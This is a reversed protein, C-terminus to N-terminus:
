LRSRFTFIEDQDKIGFRDFTAILIWDLKGAEVLTMLDDFRYRERDIKMKRSDWDQFLGAAQHRRIKDEFKLHEPIYLGHEEAYREVTERQHELKQKPTSVRGFYAIREGPCPTTSMFFRVTRTIVRWEYM